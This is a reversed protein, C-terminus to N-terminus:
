IIQLNEDVMLVRGDYITTLMSMQELLTDNTSKNGNMYNSTAIQNAIIRAQNMVESQRISLARNEYSFLISSGVIMSPIIALLITWVILRCRLSKLFSIFRSAKKM